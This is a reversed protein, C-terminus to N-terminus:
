RSETKLTNNQLVRWNEILFGHPNNESRTVDRLQCETILDKTSVSTARTIQQHAYTRAIWPRNKSLTVSDVVIGQSISASILANYYGKEKLNDYQQKASNDALYLAKNVNADIAKEDPDLTFFLEHFRRVHAKAEVPRDARADHASATLLQGNELVYIRSSALSSNQFSFYAIAGALGLVAVVFILALSRVQQFATDITKLSNFM